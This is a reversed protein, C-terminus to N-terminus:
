GGSQRKMMPLPAEIGLGFSEFSKDELIALKPLGTEMPERITPLAVDCKKFAEPYQGFIRQVIPVFEEDQVKLYCIFGKKQFKNKMSFPLAIREIPVCNEVESLVDQILDLGEWTKVHIRLVDPGRLVVKEDAFLKKTVCIQKLESHVKSIKIQKARHARKPAKRPTPINVKRESLVPPSPSRSPALAKIPTSSPTPSPSRSAVMGSPTLAQVSTPFPSMNLGHRIFEHMPLLSWGQPATVNNADQPICYEAATGSELGNPTFIYLQINQPVNDYVDFIPVQPQPVFQISQTAFHQQTNQLVTSSQHVIQTSTNSNLVNM